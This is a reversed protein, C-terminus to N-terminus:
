DDDEAEVQSVGAQHALFQVLEDNFFLRDPGKMRAYKRFRRDIFEVAEDLKMSLYTRDEAPQSAILLKAVTAREDSVFAGELLHEAIRRASATEWLGVRKIATHLRDLGFAAGPTRQTGTKVQVVLVIPVDLSVGWREFHDRDWDDPQGGVDECVKPLRVALIDCDSRGRRDDPMHMVFNRLPFFGNLRLYWYALTEGYNM